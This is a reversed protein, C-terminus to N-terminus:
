DEESRLILHEVISRSVRFGSSILTEILPRLDPICGSQKAKVLVGLTGTVRLGLKEAHKRGKLDDLILLVNTFELALAIASAEGRDLSTSLLQSYRANKVHEIKVWDPLYEGFEGAIEETIYVEGYLQQLVGLAEIKTLSILCSTDAIVIKEHM